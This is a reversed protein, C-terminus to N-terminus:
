LTVNLDEPMEWQHSYISTLEMPVYQNYPYTAEDTEEFIAQFAVSSRSEAWVCATLPPNFYLMRASAPAVKEEIIRETGDSNRYMLQFFESTNDRRLFYDAAEEVPVGNAHFYKDEDKLHVRDEGNWFHKEKGMQYKNVNFGSEWTFHNMDELRFESYFKGKHDLIEIYDFGKKQSKTTNIFAHYDGSPSDSYLSTLYECDKKLELYYPEEEPHLLSTIRYTGEYDHEDNAYDNYNWFCRVCSGKPTVRAREVHEFYEPHSPNFSTKNFSLDECSFTYLQIRGEEIKEIPPICTPVIFHKKDEEFYIGPPLVSMFEAKGNEATSFFREAPRSDSWLGTFDTMLLTKMESAKLDLCYLNGFEIFIARDNDLWFLRDEFLGKTLNSKGVTERPM